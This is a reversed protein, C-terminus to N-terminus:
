RQSRKTKLLWDKMKASFENKYNAGIPFGTSNGSLFIQNGEVHSVKETNIIFSKHIRLFSSPPLKEEIESLTLYTLYKNKATAIALYNKQSEIYVIDSYNIKVLKGKADTQIFFYSQVSEVVETKKQGLVTNIRSICKVFREYSFPKLLYDSVDLEFADLAFNPHATTFVIVTKGKLLASLEIGSIQPMDIDMFTIDAYINNQQFYALAELPNENSGIGKLGPTKDIYAQLSKIAHLEDDIIYCTTM